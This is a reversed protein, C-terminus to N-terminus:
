PKFYDLMIKECLRACDNVRYFTSSFYGVGNHYMGWGQPYLHLGLTPFCQSLGSGITICEEGREVFTCDRPRSSSISHYNGPQPCYTQHHGVRDQPPRDLVFKFLVYTQIEEFFPILTWSGKYRM